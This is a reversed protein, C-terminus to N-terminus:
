KASPVRSAAAHASPSKSGSILFIAASTARFSALHPNDTISRASVLKSARLQTFPPIQSPDKSCNGERGTAATNM